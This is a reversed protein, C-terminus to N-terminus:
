LPQIWVEARGPAQITGRYLALQDVQIDDVWIRAHSFADLIAKHYNDVDRRRKDPPFYTITVSVAGEIPEPRGGLVGLIVEVARDRYIRGKKSLIVRGRFARWYTNISPPWPLDIHLAAGVVAPGNM